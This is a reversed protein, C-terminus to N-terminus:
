SISNTCRQRWNCTVTATSNPTSLPIGLDTITYNFSDTGNVGTDLSEFQENPGYLLSGLAVSGLTGTDDVEVITLEDDNTAIDVDTDNALLFKTFDFPLDDETVIITDDVANPPDNVATINILVTDTDNLIGGSGFNGLDSTFITVNGAGDGSLNASPTYNMGLLAANIDSITGNFTMESDGSGTGTTFNLGAITSLSLSSTAILTIEAIGNGDNVDSDGISITYSPGFELITDELMQLIEPETTGNFINVPPDNVPTVTINVFATASSVNASDIVAYDFSTEGFFNLPEPFYTLTVNSTPEDPMEAIGFFGTLLGLFNLLTGFDFGGVTPDHSDDTTLTINLPTDEPTEVAFSLSSPAVHTASAFQIFGGRFDSISDVNNQSQSFIGFGLGTVLLVTLLSIGTYYLKSNNSGM